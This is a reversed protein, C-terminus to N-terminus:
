AEAGELSNSCECERKEPILPVVEEILKKTNDLNQKMTKKIDKFQTFSGLCVDYDTITAIISFCMEKERCLIAEPVGTMGILDASQSYMKSAARTSFQPGSIRLYTGKEHFDLKLKKATEILEKGMEKCFPDAMWVHYVKGEDYFTTVEKGWDIFQDPFVITGPKLEKKLSGCACTALVRECGLEKLAWINARFNIKHPPISHKSGHRPLFAIKRGNLEGVTISDSPKGFPTEIEKEEANKLMKPDYVGTGGILGIM